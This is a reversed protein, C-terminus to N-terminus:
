FKGNKASDTSPAKLTAIIVTICEAHPENLYGTDFLLKRPTTSSQLVNFHRTEHGVCSRMTTSVGSTILVHRCVRNSVGAQDPELM